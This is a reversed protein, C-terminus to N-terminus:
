AMVTRGFVHAREVKQQRGAEKPAAKYSFILASMKNHFRPMERFLTGPGRAALAQLVFLFSALGDEPCREGQKGLLTKVACGGPGNGPFGFDSFPRQKIIEFRFLVQREIKELMFQIRDDVPKLTVPPQWIGRQRFLEEADDM